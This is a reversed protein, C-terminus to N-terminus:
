LTVPMVVLPCQVLVRAPVLGSSAPVSLRSWFYLVLALVGLVLDLAGRSVVPGRSAAPSLLILRHYQVVQDQKRIMRPPGGRTVFSLPPKATLVYDQKTENYM